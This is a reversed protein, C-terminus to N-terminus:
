LTDETESDIEDGEDVDPDFESLLGLSRVCLYTEGDGKLLYTYLVHRGYRINSIPACRILVAGIILGVIRNHEIKACERCDGYFDSCGMDDGGIEIQGLNCVTCTEYHVM